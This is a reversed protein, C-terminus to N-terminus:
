ARFGMLSAHVMKRTLERGMTDMATKDYWAPHVDSLAFPSRLVDTTGDEYHITGLPDSAPDGVAGQFFGPREIDDSKPFYVQCTYYRMLMLHLLSQEYRVQIQTAPKPASAELVDSPVEAALARAGGKFLVVTAGTPVKMPANDHRTSCIPMNSVTEGKHQLIGKRIGQNKSKPGIFYAGVIAENPIADASQLM